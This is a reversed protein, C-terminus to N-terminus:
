LGVFGFVKVINRSRYRFFMEIKMDKLVWEINIGLDEEGM